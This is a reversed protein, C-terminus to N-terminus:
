KGWIKIQVNSFVSEGEKALSLIGVGEKYIHFLKSIIMDAVNEQPYSDICLCVDDAIQDIEQTTLEIMSKIAIKRCEKTCIYDYPFVEERPIKGFGWGRLKDLFGM